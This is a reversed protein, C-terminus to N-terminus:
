GALCKANAAINDRKAHRSDMRESGVGHEATSEDDDLTEGLGFGEALSGLALYLLGTNGGGHAEYFWAGVAAKFAARGRGCARHPTGQADTILFDDPESDLYVAQSVVVGDSELFPTQAAALV